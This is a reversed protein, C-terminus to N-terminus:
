GGFTNKIKKNDNDKRLVFSLQSFFIIFYVKCLFSSTPVVSTKKRYSQRVRGEEGRWRLNETLYVKTLSPRGSSDM